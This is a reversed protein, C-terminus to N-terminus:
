KLLDRLTDIKNTVSTTGGDTNLEKLSASAQDTLDLVSEFYPQIFYYAGLAIGIIVVWYVIRLILSIRNANRISRLMENNEEALAYTRELLSKEEPTM